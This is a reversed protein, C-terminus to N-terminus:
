LKLHKRFEKMKAEDSTIADAEPTDTIENPQSAEIYLQQIQKIEIEFNECTEDTYLGRKLALNLRELRQQINELIDEKSQGKASIVNTLSNAGWTVSSYEWLKAETIRNAGSDSDNEAKITNFGISLETILGDKHMQLKDQSNTDSGFKSVFYLGHDDEKLEQPIGIVDYPNHQYLHKIREIRESISKSFAGKTLIDGDSDINNFVSAYGAVIGKKEDIDKIELSGNSKVQYKM